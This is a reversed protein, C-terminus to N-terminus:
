YKGSSIKAWMPEGLYKGPRDAAIRTYMTTRGLSDVNTNYLKGDDTFRIGEPDLKLGNPVIGGTKPTADLLNDYDALAKAALGSDPSRNAVLAFELPVDSAAAQKAVAYERKLADFAPKAGARIGLAALAKAGLAEGPLFDSTSDSLGHQHASEWDAASKYEPDNAYRYNHVLESNPVESTAKNDVPYALGPQLAPVSAATKFTKGGVVVTDPFSTIPNTPVPNTPYPQITDMYAQEAGLRALGTAYEDAGERRAQEEAKAAQIADYAAAKQTAVLNSM